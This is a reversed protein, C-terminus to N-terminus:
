GRNVERRVPSNSLAELLRVAKDTMVGHLIALEQAGQTQLWEVDGFVIAQVQLTELNAGLYDLLLEGIEPSGAEARCERRWRSVTSPPLSYEKAVQSVGQGELLCAMAQAKTEENHM